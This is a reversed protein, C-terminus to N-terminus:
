AAAEFLRQGIFEGKAAGAPCAFHGGGTNTVFQNMMDFRSMREFIKIFGTRLDRQYCMFILGADFEMGQRWPPWREATINAGDNYSYSRRLVRSGELSAQHALRVHSNEPVVPNGDPDKADLDIPDFEGDAGLPAGSLKKRGFTQEQFAVQVRDWHELAIRARRVVLYSGGRMWPPAEDGAWVVADMEKPDNTPPNGTGDKFGMLNRPTRKAGYDSIFGAQVWRIQAVGYALRALQRVAHFAVQPNDACAQVLLDGGTRAPALQEGPFNPLDVFAEPRHARLGYRDHGDKVFLGAGFGFTLTLRSPSLGLVDAPDPEAAYDGEAAIDVPQGISLLAAAETWQRLLKEVDARKATTLDFAALYTQAQASTVIGGQRAGWFPETADPTQAGAEQAAALAPTAPFHSGAVAALGATAALFGRRTAKPRDRDRETM